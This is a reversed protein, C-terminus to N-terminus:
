NMKVVIKKIKTGANHFKTEYETPINKKVLEQNSYLDNTNEIIQLSDLKSWEELTYEYLGDNDTKFEIIGDKTLIERYIKVFNPSTLRKNTHRKKPWPDSFNLFIKKISHKNFWDLLNTADDSIVKLNVLKNELNDFKRFAKLIVTPYKEVGIFNINPFQLANNMIFQGKGMGIEVFLDKNNNFYKKSKEKELFYKSEKILNIAEPNTRLRGM